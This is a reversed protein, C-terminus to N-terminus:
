KAQELVEITKQAAKEWSFKKAQELGKQALKRGKELALRVGRAIDEESYPDVIVGADGAVGPLSGADSVVVPVGCAMAEVVPIGFGEWFSPMVFVKAGAMLPPIEEDPVFDTFIVKQELELEKVAEFISQYMWGKKGAVVLTIPSQHNTILKKKGVVSWQESVVLKFAGLLGEINKSPRLSGLFLIYDGSIRYKDKVRESEQEKVRDNFKERDYGPYTVTIKKSPVGYAKIIDNKTAQSIALVHSAKEVSRRTWCALQLLDKRTFQEPFKIFGLDMISCVFPVPCFAPAYHGPTFFVDPRPKGFHLELPLRWRTWFRKPGFVKYSWGKKKKPMDPLPQDQLYIIFSHNTKLKYIARLLEFAYQNSGVRAKVNAENGDIGVLM